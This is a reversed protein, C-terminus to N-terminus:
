LIAFNCFFDSDCTFFHGHLPLKKDGITVNYPTAKPSFNCLISFIIKAGDFDDDAIRITLIPIKRHHTVQLENDNQASVYFSSFIDCDDYLGRTTCASYGSGLQRM